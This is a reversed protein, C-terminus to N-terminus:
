CGRLYLRSDMFGHFNFREGFLNPEIEHENIIIDPAM